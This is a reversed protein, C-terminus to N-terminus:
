VNLLKGAIEVVREFLPLSIVIIMVKGALEVKSALSTQEADRCADSSFQALLCIGLCKFLISSYGSSLNAVEMMNKLHIIVTSIKSFVAAILLIGAILNVCFSYEPCYKKLMICIMSCVIALLFLTLNEM